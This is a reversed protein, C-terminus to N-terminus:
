SMSKFIAEYNYELAQLGRIFRADSLTRKACGSFTADSEGIGFLKKSLGM